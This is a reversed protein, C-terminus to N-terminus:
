DTELERILTALDTGALEPSAGYMEDFAATYDREEDVGFDTAVIKPNLAKYHIATGTIYVRKRFLTVVKTEDNPKFEVRWINGDDGTLEGFFVKKAEGGETHRDRLEFLKGYITIDDVAFNPERLKNLAQSTRRDFVAKTPRGETFRISFIPHANKARVVKKPVGNRYERKATNRHPTKPM